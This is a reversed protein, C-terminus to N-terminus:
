TSWPRHIRTSSHQLQQGPSTGTPNGGTRRNLFDLCLHGCNATNKKQIGFYNYKININSPGSNFYNQLELPPRLNGFSDFYEVGSGRKVCCVWHTGKGRISDLNVVGTENENIIPPLLDRMFVGRFYPVNLREAYQAIDLNFLPVNPISDIIQSSYLSKKESRM